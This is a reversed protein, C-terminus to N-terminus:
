TEFQESNSLKVIFDLFRGFNTDKSMKGEKADQEMAYRESRTTQPLPVCKTFVTAIKNLM